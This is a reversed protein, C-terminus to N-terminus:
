SPRARNRTVSWTRSTTPRGAPAASRTVASASRMCASRFVLRPPPKMCSGTASRDRRNGTRSLMLVQAFHPNGAYKELEAVAADADEYPVVLSGKLRPEPELWEHVIWENMAHCVAAGFERNQYSQGNDGTPNLIGLVCNNQDLLQKQMFSLSSGQRGGEPPYADRRSANPQGKPYAPGKQYAQRPRAGFTQM